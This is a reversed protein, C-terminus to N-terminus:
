GRAGSTEPYTGLVAEGTNRQWEAYTSSRSLAERCAEPLRRLLKQTEVSARALCAQFYDPDNMERATLAWTVGLLRAALDREGRAATLHKVLRDPRDLGTFACALSRGFELDARHNPRTEAKAREFGEEDDMHVFFLARGFGQYVAHRHEAPGRDLVDRVSPRQPYEFFGLKFGFGDYCLPYYLPEVHPELAQIRAPNRKHRFGYWFGLGVYYLYRFRPHMAMLDREATDLGFGPFLYGRPLYGMAAGEFFFPRFHPDLRLGEESVERAGRATLMANYGGIFAAGLRSVMQRGEDTSIRFLPLQKEVEAPDRRLLPLLIPKLFKVILDLGDEIGDRPM